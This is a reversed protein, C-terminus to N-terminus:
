VSSRNPNPRENRQNGSNQYEWILFTQVESSLHLATTLNFTLTLAKNQCYPAKQHNKPANYINIHTIKYLKLYWWIDPFSCIGNADATSQIPTYTLSSLGYNKRGPFVIMLSNIKELVM